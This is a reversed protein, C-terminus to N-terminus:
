CLIRSKQPRHFPSFLFRRRSFTRGKLISGNKGILFKHQEKPIRIKSEVEVKLENVIGRKAELVRDENGSIVIHLTQDRTVSWEIKVDLKTAIEDCKKRTDNGFLQSKREDPPLRIIQSTHAHKRIQLKEANGAAGAGGGVPWTSMLSTGSSPLSPFAEDYVMSDSGGGGGGGSGVVGGASAATPTTAASSSTGPEVHDGGNVVNEM